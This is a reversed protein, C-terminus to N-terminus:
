IVGEGHANRMQDTCKCEDLARKYVKVWTM